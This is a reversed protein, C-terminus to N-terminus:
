RLGILAATLETIASHVESSNELGRGAAAEGSSGRPTEDYPVVGIVPVGIIREADQLDFGADSQVQKLVVRFREPPLGSILLPDLRQRLFQIGIINFATMLCITESRHLVSSFMSGGDTPLSLVVYPFASCMSDVLHGTADADPPEATVDAAAGFAWFHDAASVGVARIQDHDAGEGLGMLDSINMSPDVGFVTELMDGSYLDFDVVATDQGTADAIAAAVGAVLPDAGALPFASFFSICGPSPQRPPSSPARMAFSDGHESPPESAESLAPQHLRDRELGSPGHPSFSRDQVPLPDLLAPLRARGRYDESSGQAGSTRRELIEAVEAELEREIEARRQAAAEEEREWEKEERDSEIRRAESLYPDGSTISCDWCVFHDGETFWRHFHKEFWDLDADDLESEIAASPGMDDEIARIEDLRM